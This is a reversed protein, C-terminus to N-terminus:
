AIYIDYRNRKKRLNSKLFNYIKRSKMEFDPQHNLFFDLDDSYRHNLYFRGLATGGTLYFEGLQGKIIGMVEDQLKYLKNYGPVSLNM